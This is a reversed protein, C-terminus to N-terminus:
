RFIAKIFTHACMILNQIWVKIGEEEIKMQVDCALQKQGSNQNCYGYLSGNKQERQKINEIMMVSIHKPIKSDSFDHM